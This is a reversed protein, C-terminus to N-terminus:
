RRRGFLLGLVLGGIAAGAVYILPKEQAHAYVAKVAEKTKNTYEKIDLKKKDSHRLKKELADSSSEIVLELLQDLKEETHKNM